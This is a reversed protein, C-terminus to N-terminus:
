RPGRRRLTPLAVGFAYAIAVGLVTEGLREGFRAAAAAPEAQLLLLFVLFTTFASTVYWRSGRTAAMAALAAVVAAGYVGAPPEARVVM